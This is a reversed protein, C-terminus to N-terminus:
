LAERRLAYPFSAAAPGTSSSGWIAPIEIKLDSERSSALLSTASSGATFDPANCGSICRQHDASRTRGQYACKSLIHKGFLRDPTHQGLQAEPRFMLLSLQPM